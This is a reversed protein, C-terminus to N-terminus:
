LVGASFFPPRFPPLFRPNTLNSLHKKAKFGARSPLLSPPFSPKRVKVLKSINTKLKVRMMLHPMNTM